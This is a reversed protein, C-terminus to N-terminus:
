VIWDSAGRPRCGPREEFPDVAPSLARHRQGQLTADIRRYVKELSKRMGVGVGWRSGFRVTWTAPELKLSHILTTGGGPRPLLEVSSVLWKFPGQTYERLIGMRRPEVWEYPFEEGVEPMGAKRGKPSPACAAGPSM